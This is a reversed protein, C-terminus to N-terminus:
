NEIDEPQENVLEYGDLLGNYYTGNDGEVQYVNGVYYDHGIGNVKDDWVHKGLDVNEPDHITTNFKEFNFSDDNNFWDKYHFNEKDPYLARYRRAWAEALKQNSTLAQKWNDWTNYQAM